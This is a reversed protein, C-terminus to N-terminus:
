ANIKFHFLSELIKRHGWILKRYTRLFKKSMTVYLIFNTSSYLQCIMDTVDLLLQYFPGSYDGNVSFLYDAVNGFVAFLVSLICVATILRVGNLDNSDKKKTVKQLFQKKRRWLKLGVSVCCLIVTGPLLTDALKSVGWVLYTDLVEFHILYFRTPIKVAITQNTGPIDVWAVEFVLSLPAYLIAALAYLSVICMVVRPRTFIRAVHFPFYVAIVREVAIAALHFQVVCMLTNYPGFLYVYGYSEIISAALIDVKEIIYYVQLVSHVVSLMIDVLSLSELFLVNTDKFGCHRLVIINLVNGVIGLICLIPTIFYNIIYLVTYLTRTYETDLEASEIQSTRPRLSENVVRDVTTLDM